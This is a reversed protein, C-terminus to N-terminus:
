FIYVKTVNLTKTLILSLRYYTIYITGSFTEKSVDICHFLLFASRIFPLCSMTGSAVM